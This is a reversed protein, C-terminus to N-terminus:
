TALVKGDPAIDQIPFGGPVRTVVRQAGSLSIVRLANGTNMWIEDGSLSWALGTGGRESVTTKKGSLDVVALSGTNDGRVPLDHFAIRGGEPSVRALRLWGATEYLVKGIPFELRVKGGVEHVVALTKGDPGWDAESVNELIERPAGGALPVTALTGTNEWGTTFRRNLSVAIEGRKPTSLVDARGTGVPPSDPRGRRRRS